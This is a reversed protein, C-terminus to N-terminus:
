MEEENHVKEDCMPLQSRRRSSPLRIDSAYVGEARANRAHYQMFSEIESVVSGITTNLIENRQNKEGLSFFSPNVPTTVMEYLRDSIGQRHMRAYPLEENGGEFENTTKSGEFLSSGKHVVALRRNVFYGLGSFGNTGAFNGVIYDPYLERVSADFFQTTGPKTDAKFAVFQESPLVRTGPDPLSCYSFEDNPDVVPVLALDVSIHIFIDDNNVTVNNGGNVYVRLLKRRCGDTASVVVHQNTIVYKEGDIKVLTGCAVDNSSKAPFVKMRVSCQEALRASEPRDTLIEYMKKSENKMTDLKQDMATFKQDMATFKATFKQDMATFRQDMATFRQDMAAFKQDMAAFKKDMSYVAAFVILAQVIVAFAFMTYLITIPAEPRASSLSGFKFGKTSLFIRPWPETLVLARRSGTYVSLCDRWFRGGATKAERETELFKGLLVSKLNRGFAPEPRRPLKFNTACVWASRRGDLFNM